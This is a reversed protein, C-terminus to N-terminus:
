KMLNYLQSCKESVEVCPHFFFYNIEVLLATPKWCIGSNLCKMNLCDQNKTWRFIHLYKYVYMVVYMIVDYVYVYFFRFSNVTHQLCNTFCKIENPQSYSLDSFHFWLLSILYSILHPIIINSYHVIRGESYPRVVHVTGINDNRSFSNFEFMKGTYQQGTGDTKDQLLLSM